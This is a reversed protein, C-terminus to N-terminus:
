MEYSDPIYDVHVNENEQVHTFLYYIKNIWKSFAEPCEISDEYEILADEQNLIFKGVQQPRIQMLSDRVHKPMQLVRLVKDCTEAMPENNNFETYSYAWEIILRFLEHITRSFFQPHTAYLKEFLETANQNCESYTIIAIPSLDIVVEHLNIAAYKRPNENEEVCKKGYETILNEIFRTSHTINEASKIMYQRTSCADMFASSGDPSAALWLQYARNKQPTIDREFSINWCMDENNWGIFFNHNLNPKPIPPSWHQDENNWVWGNFPQININKHDTLDNFPPPDIIAISEKGDSGLVIDLSYHTYSEIYQKLESSNFINIDYLNIIFETLYSTDYNDQLFSIYLTCDDTLLNFKTNSLIDNDSGLYDKFYPYEGIGDHKPDKYTIYKM